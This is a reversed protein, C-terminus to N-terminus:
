GSSANLSVAALFDGPNSIALNYLVKYLRLNESYYTISTSVVLLPKRVNLENM